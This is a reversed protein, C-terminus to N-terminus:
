DIVQSRGRDLLRMYRHVRRHRRARGAHDHRAITHAIHLDAYQPPANEIMLAIGARHAEDVCPAIANAFAKAAPEWSLAGRGGTTM